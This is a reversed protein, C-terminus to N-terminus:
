SSQTARATGLALIPLTPTTAGERPELTLAVVVGEGVTAHGTTFAASGSAGVEFGGIAVPVQDAGILWAEYVQSGSTPALNRMVIAVGGDSGVAALGSPGGADRPDALVALQAGPKAAADLVQVVGNRYAELSALQGGLQVNWAGLAIALVLAAAAVPAWIPRRLLTGLDWGRGAERGDRPPAVTATAPASPRSPAADRVEIDAAAAARIRDRLGPPAAVPDVAQFLAPIVSHLEAIEAHVEPCETLHGRVADSEAPSLAGLVYSAAMEAVDSCTLGGFTHEAV